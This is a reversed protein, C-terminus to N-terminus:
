DCKLIITQAPNVYRRRLDKFNWSHNCEVGVCKRWIRKIHRINYFPSAAFPLLLPNQTPKQALELPRNASREIEICPNLLYLAFRM